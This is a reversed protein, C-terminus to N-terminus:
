QKFNGMPMQSYIYKANTLAQFDNGNDKVADSMKESLFTTGVM